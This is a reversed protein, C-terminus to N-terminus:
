HRAYKLKRQVHDDILQISIRRRQNIHYSWIVAFDVKGHGGNDRKIQNKRNTIMQRAVNKDM